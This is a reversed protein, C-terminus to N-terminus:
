NFLASKIREICATPSYYWERYTLRLVKLGCRELIAQKKMNTNYTKISDEVGDIEVLLSHGENDSVSLDTSFGATEVGALVELGEARIAKAVEKEFANKYVNEDFRDATQSKNLYSQIYEIYDRLLGEPLSKPNKSLFCILKKRARTIAVNFLNPKQLFTLSQTFSNDAVCWSLIMIDKEDGQFTHATGVEIKHKKIINESFVQMLAKKILEVQGRFPSVIGISVPESDSKEDELILEHLRKIVAETEPMNRTVDFDVKGDPVLCLELVDNSASNKKMIRIRGGYFEKNSFEIIPPLSRFHEDLMIPSTSYYNALDFMSNTRFRWILQYKDPINYQSLFSQEKTKELFSLHPLQKDDGVIVAKKARFLIPFCSAIDCQSAEDIIAVDFLGPRMPLSGSVAYTTVCWCPFAELLPKFDETELLRTQQQRKRAVLSKSHVFLRQRKTQDRLLGKLAERRKGKLIEVALKSQKRKLNRINELLQHLNGIKHIKAEVMRAKCALNETYLENKLREIDELCVDFNTIKLIKKLKSARFKNFINAWFNSKELDKELKRILGMVADLEDKKLKKNIFETKKLELLSKDKEEILSRWENELEIIEECKKENDRITSVLDHMDDVDVLIANDYGKDLEVKNNLLDQLKFNLQKQYNQRGARLALFPAGLENLREAVVDTAKDMRSAVLVTKGNAILHAVLNVITQSKGTGPPGAVSVIANEEISKIVGEQSDSLSLPTTAVFDELNKKPKSMKESMKGCTRMYEENITSLSTERFIGSPKEAIQTLEHLVGATVQPRKTLIIASQNTVCVKEIKVKKPKSTEDDEIVDHLNDYNIEDENVAEDMSVNNELADDEHDLKLEIGPVISRLTTLFIEMKEESLPLDPVVELLGDLLHEMEDEDDSKNMLATLAGTNLSLVEDQLTCEINKGVRELKAPMYLLPTLFENSRKNRGGKGVLFLYGYILYKDKQSMESQIMLETLLPDAGDLKLSSGFNTFLEEEGQLFIWKNDKDQKLNRFTSSQVEERVCDHLYLSLRKIFSDHFASSIIKGAEQLM